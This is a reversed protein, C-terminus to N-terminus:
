TMAPNRLFAHADMSKWGNVSSFKATVILASNECVVRLALFRCHICSPAYVMFPAYLRSLTAKSPDTAHGQKRGEGPLNDTVSDSMVGHWIFSLLWHCKKKEKKEPKKRQAKQFYPQAPSHCKRSQIENALCLNYTTM